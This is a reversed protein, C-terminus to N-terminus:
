RVIRSRVLLLFVDRVRLRRLVGGSRLSKLLRVLGGALVQSQRTLELLPTGNVDELEVLQQRGESAGEM